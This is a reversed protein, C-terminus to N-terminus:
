NALLLLHKSGLSRLDAKLGKTASEIEKIVIEMEKVAETLSTVAQRSGQIKGQVADYDAKVTRFPQEVADEEPYEPTPGNFIEDYLGELERQAELHEKKAKQLAIKEAEASELRKSLGDRTERFRWEEHKAALYEREEKAAKAAFQESRGGLRYALRRMTSDSYKEHDKQENQLTVVLRQLHDEAATIETRLNSVYKEHQSLSVEAHETHSLIALLRANESTASAIRKATSM